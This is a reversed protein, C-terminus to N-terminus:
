LQLTPLLKELSLPADFIESDDFSVIVRQPKRLEVGFCHEYRDSSSTHNDSPEFQKLEEIASDYAVIADHVRRIKETILEKRRSQSFKRRKKKSSKPFDDILICDAMTIPQQLPNTYWTMLDDFSCATELLEGDFGEFNEPDAGYHVPEHFGRVFMDLHLLLCLESVHGSIDILDVISKYRGKEYADTDTDPDADELGFEAMLAQILREVLASRHITEDIWKHLDEHNERLVVPQGYYRPYSFLMATRILERSHEHMASALVRYPGFTGHTVVVVDDNNLCAPLRTNVLQMLKVAQQPTANRAFVGFVRIM